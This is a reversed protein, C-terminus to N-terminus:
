MGSDAARPKVAPPNANAPQILFETFYSAVLVFGVTGVVGFFVWLGYLDDDDGSRSVLTTEAEGFTIQFAAGAMAFNQRASTTVAPNYRVAQMVSVCAARESSGGAADTCLVSPVSTRDVGAMGASVYGWVKHSTMLPCKSFLGTAITEACISEPDYFVVGLGQGVQLDRANTTVTQMSNRMTRGVQCLRAPECDGTLPPALLASALRFGIDLSSSFQMVDGPYNAHVYRADATGSSDYERVKANEYQGLAQNTLKPVSGDRLLYFTSAMGLPVLIQEEIFSGITQVQSSVSVSGDKVMGDIIYALLATNLRSHSYSSEAGPMQSGFVAPDFTTTGLTSSSPAFVAEVFTRFETASDGGCVGTLTCSTASAYSAYGPETISSTHWMLMKYTIDQTPYAPNRLVLNDHPLYRSDVPQNINQAISDILLASAVVLLESVAGLRVPTDLSMARTASSATSAYGYAASTRWSVASTTGGPLLTTVATGYLATNSGQQNEFLQRLSESNLSAM